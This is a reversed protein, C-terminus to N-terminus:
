RRSSTTERLEAKTALWRRLTRLGIGLERAAEPVTRGNMAERVRRGAERQDIQWLATLGPNGSAGGGRLRTTPPSSDRKLVAAATQMSKEYAQWEESTPNKM